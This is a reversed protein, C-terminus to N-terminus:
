TQDERQFWWVQYLATRWEQWAALWTPRRWSTREEVRRLLREGRGGGVPFARSFGRRRFGMQTFLAEIERESSWAEIVQSSSDGARAFMELRPTTIVCHGGPLLAEQLGAVFGRKHEDPVHEIVESSVILRVPRIRQQQLLERVNGHHFQLHPFLERALRPGGAALDCGTAEGYVSVLDTLWGRGCGVDLITLPAATEEAICGVFRLVAGARGAEEANPWRSQYGPANRWFDAYFVENAETYGFEFDSSM